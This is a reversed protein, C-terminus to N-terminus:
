ERQTLLTLSCSVSSTTLNKVCIIYAGSSLGSVDVLGNGQVMRNFAVRGTLDTVLVELEEMPQCRLRIQGYSVDWTPKTTSPGDIVSTPNGGYRVGSLVAGVARESESGHDANVTLVKGLYEVYYDFSQPILSDLSNRFWRFYTRALTPKKMLYIVQEGLYKLEYVGIKRVQGITDCLGIIESLKVGDQITSVVGDETQVIYWNSGIDGKWWYRNGASDVSDKVVVDIRTIPVQTYSPDRPYRDWGIFVTDGAFGLYRFTCDDGARVVICSLALAMLLSVTRM